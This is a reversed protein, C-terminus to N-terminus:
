KKRPVGVELCDLILALVHQTAADLKESENYRQYQRRIEEATLLIGHEQTNQRFAKAAAQRVALPLTFRSAVEVLTRQSEASNIVALVGVAKAALKPNYVAAIIYDQVGRLDYLKGSTQSLKALLDLALAAQRQRAEFGVFEDPALAALQDLQWRFVKDDHPRAFAKALSDLRALREAQDFYGQRAVLGVRLSATRPDHRLQQVLMGIVPHDITVDILALECDPSRAARLLLEKGNTFTDAQFGAASLMGALERAEALNPAAVLAQRFGSSAAFFGLAQPVYSSGAFPRSPQLRVIAELAAMRLRRDPSRAALVLPSPKADRYLLGTAKGIEGLIRAAAAAAAFRKHTVAYKLVEEITEAGSQRAEVVVPNKEGLPRDLGNEYAAAELATALCLLGVLPDNPALAYADRARQLATARAADDPTRIRATCQRKADDWRWLETKEHANDDAKNRHEFYSKAADTLLRVAEARSPVAADLRKLAAAAADRLAPESKESLCPRLLCFVVSTDRVDKMAGLTQIAEVAVKPDAQAVMAVLPARAIRGMEALAARVNAHEAARAPDVLVALLPGIAAERSEQLGVLARLRKEASPDQLQEILGAIRKSDKLRAAVAAAVADALQKAEPLLASRQSLDLFVPSGIQQGLDALQQSNLKADLVKALFSKALDARNLDVLIKAARVCEEPTTPKTELIAAVAPEDPIAAKAAPKGAAPKAEAENAKKEVPKAKEAKKAAPKDAKPPKPKPAQAMAANVGVIALFCFAAIKLRALLVLGNQLMSKSM